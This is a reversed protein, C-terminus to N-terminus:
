KMQNWKRSRSELSLGAKAQTNLSQFFKENNTVVHRNM